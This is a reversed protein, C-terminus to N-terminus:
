SVEEDLFASGATKSKKKECIEEEDEEEIESESAEADIEEGGDAEDDHDGSSEPAEKDEPELEELPLEKEFREKIKERRENEIIQRLSDKFVERSRGPRQHDLEFEKEIKVEVKENEIKGNEINIINLSISEKPKAKHTSKLLRQLLMEPGSLPKPKIEGSILDIVVGEGGLAGMDRLTKINCTPKVDEIASSVKVNQYKDRLRDIEEDKTLPLSEPNAQDRSLEVEFNDESADILTESQKEEDKEIEKSCSAANIAVNEKNEPEEAEDDSESESKFFALAEEEREKIKQAFAEINQNAQKIALMPSLPKYGALIRNVQETPNPVSRRSMFERLTFQRPKHYPVHIEQDREMRQKESQIKQKLIEQQKHSMKEKIVEM